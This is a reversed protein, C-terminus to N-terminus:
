LIYLPVKSTTEVKIAVIESDSTLPVEESALNKSIMIIVGGYRDDPDKRYCSYGPPLIESSGIDKSLWTECGVFVESTFEDIQQWLAEQKLLSARYTPKSTNSQPQLLTFQLPLRTLRPLHLKRHMKCGGRKKRYYGLGMGKIRKWTTSFNTMSKFAKLGHMNRAMHYLTASSYLLRSM